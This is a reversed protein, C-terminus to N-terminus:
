ISPTARCRATTRRRSPCRCARRRRPASRSTRTATRRTRSRRRVHDDPPTAGVTACNPNLRFSGIRTQWNSSTTAYYETTFWFTCGDPDLTMASYDGWRSIGTQTGRTVGPLMTTETQPLTGAPDTAFRGAYRIDPNLTSSSVSYGLAMDGKKDVALSGMWRHLGDSTGPYIQQQVPTTSVNGGTVNVQLWHIGAPGTSTGCCHVTHNAWLSEVGGINTYQLQNMLREALTDLSSGPSPATDAAVAYTAHPINTPGTFTSGSGSYDAHFKFVELGYVSSSESVFFNPRGAPPTGAATRMNSPLMSFYTATNTDFVVTRVPLGAEMDTRNFAWGRVERFTNGAFMNATMYLGDPWIGMKPYDPFWPHNADDARIPYLYWGGNVPDGTRSVAICEYYPPSGGSGSFAFDAVFWRDGIPDYTVTPDGGNDNDCLTGTTGTWLTDFTFAALRVGDTKRFIGISTNVAQIYHAPGVDGNTDPPWGAGSTPSTSASSRARTRTM